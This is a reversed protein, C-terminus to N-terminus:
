DEVGKSRLYNVVDEITELEMDTLEETPLDLNYREELALILEYLDLSDAGLDDKFSTELEIQSAPCNLQAAIAERIEELM